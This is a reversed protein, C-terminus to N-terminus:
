DCKVVKKKVGVLTFVKLNYYPMVINAKNDPDYDCKGITFYPEVMACLIEPKITPYDVTLVLKGNPKLWKAFNEITKEQQEPSMHELVSLCFITDAIIEDDNCGMSMDRIIMNMNDPRPLTELRDDIDICTVHKSNAALYYKFPHEIGCGADIVVKKKDCYKSAFAYEYPRSWWTSPINFTDVMTMKEDNWALFRNEM